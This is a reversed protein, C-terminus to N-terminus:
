HLGEEEHAQLIARFTPLNEMFLDVVEPDFQGGREAVILDIVREEPWPEKYCRRASLADYVDAIGVIRAELPIADGRLPRESGDAQPVPPYGKGDWRQHHHLAIRKAVLDFERDDGFLEAGITTHREMVAREDPDLRGPKKLVADPVGVKGVDHLTAALAFRDVDREWESGGRGRRAGWAEMIIRSIRSVRQVHPGTESPDRLRAMAITRDILSKTLQARQVSMSVTAAFRAAVGIDGPEFGITGAGDARHPNILQFVGICRGSEGLLPVGLISRTRYGTREDVSRNFRYPAEASLDYVDPVHLIKGTVAVYGAISSTDLPLVVSRVFREASGLVDNQAYVMRLQNGERVFVGGAECHTFQRADSLVRMLVTDPDNLQALENASQELAGLRVVGDDGGHTAHLAVGEDIHRLLLAQLENPAPMKVIVERAGLDLAQRTVVPDDSATLALIPITQGMPLDRIAAICDFGTIGPMMLDVVVLDVEHGALPGRLETLAVASDSYGHVKIRQDDALARRVFEVVMPQDDIVVVHIDHGAQQQHSADTM